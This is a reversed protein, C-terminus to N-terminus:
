ALAGLIIGVASLLFGALIFQWGRRTARLLEARLEDRQTELRSEWDQRDDARAREARDRVVMLSEVQDDLYALWERESITARDVRHRTVTATAADSIGVHDHTYRSVGFPRGRRHAYWRRLQESRVAWWRSLGRKAEVPADAARQFWSRVVDVGLLLLAIGGLQFGVALIKLTANTADQDHV